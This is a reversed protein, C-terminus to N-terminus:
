DRTISSASTPCASRTDTFCSLNRHFPMNQFLLTKVLPLEQLSLSKREQQLKVWIGQSSFLSEGEGTDGMFTFTMSCFSTMIEFVDENEWKRVKVWWFNLFESSWSHVESCWSDELVWKHMEYMASIALVLEKLGSVLSICKNIIALRHFTVSIIFFEKIWLRWM